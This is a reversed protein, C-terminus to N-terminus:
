QRRSATSKLARGRKVSTKWNKDVLPVIHKVMRTQKIRKSVQSRKWQASMERAGSDVCIWTPNTTLSQVMAEENKKQDNAWNRSAEGTRIRWSEAAEYDANANSLGGIDRVRECSQEVEPPVSKVGNGPLSRYMGPPPQPSSAAAGGNGLAGSGLADVDAQMEPEQDIPVPTEVHQSAM